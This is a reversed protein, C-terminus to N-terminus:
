ATNILKAGIDLIMTQHIAHISEFLPRNLGNRNFALANASL